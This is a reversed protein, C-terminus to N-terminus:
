RVQEVTALLQLCENRHANLRATDGIQTRLATRVRNGLAEFAARITQRPLPNSPASTAAM